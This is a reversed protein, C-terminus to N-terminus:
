TTTLFLAIAEQLFPTFITVFFVRTAKYVICPTPHFYFESLSFVLTRCTRDLKENYCFSFHEPHAGPLNFTANYALRNLEEAGYKEALELIPAIGQQAVTTDDYASQFDDMDYILFGVLLNFKNCEKDIDEKSVQADCSCYKPQESSYGLHNFVPYAIFGGIEVICHWSSSGDDRIGLACQVKQMGLYRSDVYDHVIYEVENVLIPYKRLLTLYCTLDKTFTRSCGGYDLQLFM